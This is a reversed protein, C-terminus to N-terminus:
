GLHVPLEANAVNEAEAPDEVVTRAMAIETNPPFKTETVLVAQEGVDVVADEVDVDLATPRPSPM